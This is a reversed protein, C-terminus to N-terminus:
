VTVPLQNCHFQIKGSEYSFEVPCQELLNCADIGEGGHGHHPGNRNLNGEDIMIKGKGNIEIGRSERLLVWSLIVNKSDLRFQRSYEQGDNCRMWITEPLACNDWQMDTGNIDFGL